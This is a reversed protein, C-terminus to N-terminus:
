RDPQEITGSPTTSKMLWTPQAAPGTALMLWHSTQRSDGKAIKPSSARRVRGFDPKAVSGAALTM